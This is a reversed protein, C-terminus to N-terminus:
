RGNGSDGTRKSSVACQTFRVTISIVAACRRLARARRVSLRSNANVNRSFRDRLPTRATRVKHTDRFDGKSCSAPRTGRTRTVLGLEELTCLIAEREARRRGRADDIGQM